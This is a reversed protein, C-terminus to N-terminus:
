VVGTFYSISLVNIRQALSSSFFSSDNKNRGFSESNQDIGLVHM